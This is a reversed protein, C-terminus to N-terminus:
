LPFVSVQVRSGAMGRLKEALLENKPHVILGLADTPHCAGTEDSCLAYYGEDGTDNAALTGQIHFGTAAEGSRPVILGVIPALLFGRRTLTVM